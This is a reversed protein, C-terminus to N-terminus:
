PASRWTSPSARRRASSPRSPIAPAATRICTPASAARSSRMGCSTPTARISARSARARTAPSFRRSSTSACTSSRSTGTSRRAYEQGVHMIRGPTSLPHHAQGPTYHQYDLVRNDKNAIQLSVVDADEAANMFLVNAPTNHLNGAYNMHVHNSGSRWGKAALDVMRTLPVVLTHTTGAVADVTVRAPWREFGKVAEITVPGPPVETVYRGRTHFLPRRLPGMRAYADSPIYPKGDSATQYIRAETEPGDVGDLVRVVLRAMPRRWRKETVPVLRQEGGWTKLLTLQPLGGANSIAAIWEGDPSWRPLFTDHEGFTLKYPEGGDAPLVFLNTYQGGLHSAYVFRRGDPSWAPRTRYLTEEKHVLRARPSAMADPQVPVRWIGGSGLPIGRNSM